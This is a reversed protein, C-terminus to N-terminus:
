DLDEWDWQGAPSGDAERGFRFREQHGEQDRFLQFMGAGPLRDILVDAQEQAGAERLARLLVAVRYRDDLAVHAGACGALATVQDRAGAERLARLLEAIAGPKDLPAHAAPDRALLATVQDGAGAERLADLLVAVGDPDDLPAHAAPDRALLATVQNGAGAERLADLLWAVAFPDDLPVRGALATVQDGAGAERLVDLLWAAAGAGDLPACAAARGALATVQEQAGVERLVGLLGTVQNRAGAERLGRPLAAAAGTGDLSVHAAARGALATVQEQAGAARLARLLWAVSDLKDLPAHAAPDRALLATVQEQAGVERLVDLLLAVGDTGDLPALAAARGALATVQDGAGAERLVSLLVAVADPNDLSVHAAPDRALLAAVQKRGGAERLADLLVAVGGPNDLPALAAARGALAAVQKRGGAKRLADLLKAAAGPNDLPALAAARGALATVQKRGGAKRLADLLEAVSYQDDLAAHAAAWGAPRHDTSHLDYLIKLLRIAVYADGHAAAHKYLQAAARYLGRDYAASGLAGLDGPDAYRAAAAWFAAPPIQDRRTYRGHQDLYDDPEYGTEADGSRARVPKLTTLTHRIDTRTGDPRSGTTLDTLASTAWNQHGPRQRSSLYGDAAAAMLAAPIPRRHGLRRADLAATILAHEVPTFLGGNTYAHLLEPGGTLHQIVDDDPGSAALAARVREDGAALAALDHQQQGSMCDPVTVRQTRPGDMLARAAAHVDPSNGAATLEELYPRPWLAGVAVAGGTAALTTRLLTAAREGSTGYLHRQTENLWLVTRARFRGEQLLEVLEGADAPRLLPWDAVVERLAEYLARTKGTCSDGALVAFVSPGGDAARRLAARLEKDHERKLYRTLSEPGDALFATGTPPLVRHVGLDFPDCERVMEVIREAAAQTGRRPWAAADFDQVLDGYRRRWIEKNGKEDEDRLDSPLSKGKSAAHDLCARVVKDVVDWDPLRKIKGNLIDSMQSTSLHAAGALSTQTLGAAEWLRKLRACFLSLPGVATGTDERAM